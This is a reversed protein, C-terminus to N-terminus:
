LGNIYNSELELREKKPLKGGMKIMLEHEDILKEPTIGTRKRLAEIEAMDRQLEMEVVKWDENFREKDGEKMLAPIQEHARKPEANAIFRKNGEEDVQFLQIFKNLHEPDYKVIFKAGVYKRRFELDIKGDSTLVEYEYKVGAVELPIGGKYYKKPKTENIWFLEVMDLFGLEEKMPAEMEYVENRTLETFTPHKSSNWLHVCVEWAKVLQEKTMLRDKNANIFEINPRSDINKATISQKDSFWMQNVVQQQLRGFLQEIPNSSRYAKHPYHTGKSKAVLNTYLEQMKPSKHGSQNDYSILYPRVQSNNAAMKMASFHDTINETESYSWGIIRESFVDVVPNIKLKAAMKLANDYFHIWDLKSGDIAWWANPFWNGKDRKTHYGYEKEWEKKGHRGLFWIRRNEPKNLFDNYARRTITPWNNEDKVKNYKNLIAPITMKNPQSYMVLLWDAMEGKIKLTNDNELGKHLLTVCGGENIYKKYKAELRVPNKGLGHPYDKTDLEHVAKAINRWLVRESEGFAKKTKSRSEILRTIGNFVRAQATWKNIQKDLLPDGNSKRYEKFFMFPDADKLIYETFKKNKTKAVPDYGVCQIVKHKIDARLSQWEVLAERGNGGTTLTIIRGLRKYKDYLSKTIFTSPDSKYRSKLLKLEMMADMFEVQKGSELYTNIQKEISKIRDLYSKNYLASAKITLIDQHYQFM